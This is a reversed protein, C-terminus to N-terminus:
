GEGARAAALAEARRVVGECRVPFNVSNAVFCRRHAEAHLAEVLGADSEATVAVEPRLVVLAFRGTEAGGTTRMVGEARDVYATVVVGSVAALHLFWLKHCASLSGVLLQEPNWRGPDGRFVPDSSGAIGHRGEAELEFARGYAAYGATGEGENGTWRVTVEYRHVEGLGTAKTEAM